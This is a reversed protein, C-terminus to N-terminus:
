YNINVNYKKNKVIFLGDVLNCLGSGLIKSMQYTLDYNNYSLIYINDQKKIKKLFDLVDPFVNKSGNSILNYLEKELISSNIKYKKSFLNSFSHLNHIKHTNLINSVELSVDYTNLTNNLMCINDTIVRIMDNILQDTDYLTHDFDIYWNM